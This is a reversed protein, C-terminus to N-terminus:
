TTGAVEARPHGRGGLTAAAVALGFAMDVTLCLLPYWHEMYRAHDHHWLDWALGHAAIGLGLLVTSRRYGLYAWAGYVVLGVSELAIGLRDHAVLAAWLYIVPMGALFSALLLKELLEQRRPLLRLAAYALSTITSAVLAFNEAKLLYATWPASPALELWAYITTGFLLSFGAAELLNRSNM